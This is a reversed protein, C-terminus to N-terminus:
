FSEPQLNTANLLKAIKKGSGEYVHAYVKSTISADAHGIRKSIDFINIGMNILLAVHSHRLDHLRIKKVSSKEIYREMTKRVIERTVPYIRSDRNPKYYSNTHRRLLEMINEPVDVIRISSFTKPTTIIDEREIRAITKNITITSNDFDLDRFTLALIEGIRAGTYFLLHFMSIYFMDRGEFASIFTKFEDITWVEKEKTYNFNKVKGIKQFPNERLGYVKVAYNFIAILTKQISGLYILSYNNKLLNNQWDRIHKPTIDCMKMKFFCKYKPISYKLKQYSSLKYRIKYEELYLEIFSEFTMELDFTNKLFYEKEWDKGDKKTAFGRKHKAIIEGSSNTYRFYCDWKKTTSNYKISM